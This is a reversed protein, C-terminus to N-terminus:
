AVGALALREAVRRAVSRRRSPRAIAIGPERRDSRTSDRRLMIARKRAFERRLRLDSDVADHGHADGPAADDGPEARSFEPNALVENIWESNVKNILDSTAYDARM